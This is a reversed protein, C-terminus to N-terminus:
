IFPELFHNEETRSKTQSTALSAPPLDILFAAEIHASRASPPRSTELKSELPSSDVPSIEIDKFSSKAQVRPNDEPISIREEALIESNWQCCGMKEPTNIIFVSLCLDSPAIFDLISRPAKLEMELMGVLRGSSRLGFLLWPREM